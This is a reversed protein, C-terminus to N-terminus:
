EPPPTFWEVEQRDGWEAKWRWSGDANGLEAIFTTRDWDHKILSRGDVFFAPPTVGAMDAITPALDINLAYREDTRDGIGLIFLPVALDSEQPLGKGPEPELHYGNDSTFILIAEPDADRIRVVMDEVSLMSAARPDAVHAHREAPISPEHPAYPAVHLFYPEPALEMFELARETLRDTEYGVLTERRGNHSITVDLYEGSVRAQWTDWGPPVRQGGGDRWGYGVLYKGILGTHYGADQLWTAVTCSEVGLDRAGAYGGAPPDNSVVGHNHAYQGRLISVRSPCCLPTTVYAKSFVTGEAGIGPLRPLSEYLPMDLDDVVVLIINPRSARDLVGVNCGTVTRAVLVVVIAVIALPALWRVHWLGIRM